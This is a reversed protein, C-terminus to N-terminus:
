SVVGNTIVKIEHAIRPELGQASARWAAESEGKLMEVPIAPGTQKEIPLSKSTEREFVHGHAVFKGSTLKGAFIFASPYQRIEGWPKARVGYSFQKAAFEKLSLESGNSLIAASLTSYNARRTRLNGLSALRRPPLGVQPALSKKVKSFASDNVRNLARRYATRAKKSGLTKCAKQFKRFGDGQIRIQLQAM